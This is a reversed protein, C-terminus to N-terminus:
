LGPHAKARKLFTKRENRRVAVVKWGRRGVRATQEEIQEEWRLKPRRRPRKGGPELILVKKLRDNESRRM